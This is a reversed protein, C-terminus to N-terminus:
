HVLRAPLARRAALPSAPHDLDELLDLAPAPLRAVELQELRDVAPDEALHEAREPLERDIRHRAVDGLPAALEDRVDLLAAAGEAAVRRELPDERRGLHVRM